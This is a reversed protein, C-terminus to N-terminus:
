LFNNQLHTQGILKNTVFLEKDLFKISLTEEEKYFGINQGDEFNLKLKLVKGTM